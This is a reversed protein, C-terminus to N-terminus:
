IINKNGENKGADRKPPSIWDRKDIPKLKLKEIFEQVKKERAAGIEKYVAGFVKGELDLNRQIHERQKDAMYVACDEWQRLFSESMLSLPILPVSPPQDAM